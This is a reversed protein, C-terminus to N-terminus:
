RWTMVFEDGPAGILVVKGGQSLETSYQKSVTSFNICIDNADYVAYSAGEALKVDLTKGGTNACVAYYVAFGDEAITCSGGSDSLNAIYEEQIYTRDEQTMYQIGGQEWLVLNNVDRLKVTSKAHNEDAIAASGLVYGNSFDSQLQLTLLFGPIFYMQSSPKESILYFKKGARSKWVEAVEDVVTVPPIKQLSLSKENTQGVGPFLNFTRMHLFVTGDQQEVFQAYENAVASAFVGDGVHVYDMQEDYGLVRCSLTDDQVSVSVQLGANAYLGAYRELDKPMPKTDSSDVITPTIPESIIGKELLVQELVNEAFATLVGSGGGSSTVAMALNHEPLVVLASHFLMTDGDKRVAKVNHAVFPYPNAIDWGLGRAFMGGNAQDSWMYQAHQEEQMILASQESFVQPHNGMLMDAFRCLDEATSYIGGTGIANVTDHPLPGDFLPIYTRVLHADKDFVDMSTKTGNMGLKQFFNSSLFNSYSMGSIREVLLELLLFGDNCYQSIEGPAHKLEQNALYALLNDHAQTDSTAFLATNGFHTGSFGSTHTMLMRPTIERYREDAMTFEPMWVVLPIDIDLLGREALALVAATVFVKSVSGIGYIDDKSISQRGTRSFVGSGGSLVITGQDILAYQVSASGYHDVISNAIQKAREDLTPTPSKSAHAVSATSCSPMLTFFFLVSVFFLLYPKIHKMAM